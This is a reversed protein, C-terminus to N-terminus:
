SVYNIKGIIVAFTRKIDTDGDAAEVGDDTFEVNKLVHTRVNDPHGFVIVIDFAALDLLDRFPAVDRLAEIDNMSLDFSGEYDKAGKGRSVPENSAGKNNTKEQSGTYNISSVSPVEVGLINFKIDVYSYSRGNVLNQAM